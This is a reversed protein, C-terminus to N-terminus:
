LKNKDFWHKGYDKGSSYYFRKVRLIRKINKEKKNLLNMSVGNKKILTLTEAKAEADIVYKKITRVPVASWVAKNDAYVTEWEKGYVADDVLMEMTNYGAGYVFYSSRGPRPNLEFFIYEGTDEDYKLDFNSFGVYGISNLFEEVKSYLKQDSTSMIADYNGLMIPSYDELLIKGLCMFRVKGDNGSYCNLVRSGTDGGKIFKQIILNGGYGAENMASVIKLYEERDSVFFVKKKGAFHCELYETANSNEPKVVIPFGFPLSDVASEREDKGCIVTQPYDLGHEDCFAYFADKTGVKHLLEKPIFRNAIMGDFYDYNSVVLETYYDSCPVVVVKEYEKHLEALERKLENRFVEPTNFGDVKKLTLINSDSTFIMADACLLIPKIGYRENFMRATGYANTDSGLIIPFFDKKM